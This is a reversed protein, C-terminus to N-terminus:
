VRRNEWLVVAERGRFRYRHQRARHLLPATSIIIVERLVAFAVAWWPWVRAGRAPRPGHPCTPAAPPWRGRPLRDTSRVFGTNPQADSPPLTIRV